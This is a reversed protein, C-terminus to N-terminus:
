IIFAEYDGNNRKDHLYTNDNDNRSEMKIKTKNIMSDLCKKALPTLDNLKKKKKKNKKKNTQEM